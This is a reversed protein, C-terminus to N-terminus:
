HTTNRREGDRGRTAERAGDKLGEAVRDRMDGMWRDESETSPLMAGLLAGAAIGMAGLAIPNDELMEDFGVRAEHAKRAGFEKASAAKDRTADWTDSMTDHLDSGDGATARHVPRDRQGYLWLMGAATMLTPLPNARVTHSLNTAFEKGGDKGAGLVRSALEAPSLRDELAAVLSALHQRQAQVERELVDPERHSEARISDTRTYDTTTM